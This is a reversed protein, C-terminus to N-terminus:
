ARGKRNLMVTTKSNSLKKATSKSVSQLSRPYFGFAQKQSNKHTQPQRNTLFRASKKMVSDINPSVSVSPSHFDQAQFEINSETEIVEIEEEHMSIGPSDEKKQTMKRFNNGARGVM